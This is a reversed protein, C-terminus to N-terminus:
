LLILQDLFTAIEQELSDRWKQLGWLILMGHSSRRLPARTHM